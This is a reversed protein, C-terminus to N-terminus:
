EPEEVATRPSAKAHVVTHPTSFFPFHFFLLPPFVKLSNSQKVTQTMYGVEAPTIASTELSAERARDQERTDLLSRESRALAKHKYRATVDRRFAPDTASPEGIPAPSQARVSSSSSACLRPSSPAVRLGSLKLCDASRSGKRAGDGRSKVRCRWIGTLPIGPPKM